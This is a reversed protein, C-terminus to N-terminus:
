GTVGSAGERDEYMWDQGCYLTAPPTTNPVIMGQITDYATEFSGPDLLSTPFTDGPSPVHAHMICRFVDRLLISRRRYLHRIFPANSSM